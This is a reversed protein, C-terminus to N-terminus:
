HGQYIDSNHVMNLLHCLATSFDPPYEPFDARFTMKVSLKREYTLQPLRNVLCVFTPEM